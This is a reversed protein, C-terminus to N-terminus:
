DGPRDALGQQPQEMKTGCTLLCSQMTCRLVTRRELFAAGTDSYCRGCVGRLPNVSWVPILGAVASDVLFCGLVYGLFGSGVDGMFISAPPWDLASIGCRHSGAANALRTDASSGGPVVVVFCLWQTCM